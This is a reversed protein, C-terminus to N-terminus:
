ALRKGPKEGVGMEGTPLQGAILLGQGECKEGM